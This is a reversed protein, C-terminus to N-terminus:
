PLEQVASEKEHDQKCRRIKQEEQNAAKRVSKKKEEKTKKREKEGKKVQVKCVKNEREHVKKTKRRGM